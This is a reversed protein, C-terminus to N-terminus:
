IKNKKPKTEEKKDLNQQLSHNMIFSTFFKDSEDQSLLEGQLKDDKGQTLSYDILADVTSKLLESKSIDSYNFILNFSLDKLSDLNIIVDTLSLENNSETNKIYKKFKHFFQNLATNNKSVSLKNNQSIADTDITLNLYHGFNAKSFSKHQAENTQNFLESIYKYEDQPLTAVDVGKFRKDWLNKIKELELLTFSSLKNKKISLILNFAKTCITDDKIYSALACMNWFVKQSSVPQKQILNYFTAPESPYYGSAKVLRLYGTFNSSERFGRNIDEELLHAINYKKDKTYEYLDKLTNSSNLVYIDNFLYMNRISYETINNKKSIYENINQVSFKLKNKEFITKLEELVALSVVFNDM